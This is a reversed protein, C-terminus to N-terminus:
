LFDTILPDDPFFLEPWPLPSCSSGGGFSFSATASRMCGDVPLNSAADSLDTLPPLSSSNGGHCAFVDVVDDARSLGYSSLGTQQQQNNAEDEESSVPAEPFTCALLQGSANDVSSSVPATTTTSSDLAATLQPSCIAGLGLAAAAAAETYSSPASSAAAAITTAASQLLSQLYQLKAAQQVIAVGAGARSQDAAATGGGLQERLAALAILQPLAAFFDTRPRHTMPDFGMQILRKKLHTNWFNKIENDTRGPLHTAIASWKNGLVSHLHLITQEEEHSFKGRKIDPRLYNTWRLRCSKGCRNLGALRPLTRWSGHGNKQIYHLLKEDEEQTWPGKKLGNEDCCPSRGM